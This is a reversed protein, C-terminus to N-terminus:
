VPANVSHAVGDLFEVRDAPRWHQDREGVKGVALAPEDGVVDRATGAGHRRRDPSGYDLDEVEGHRGGAPVFLPEPSGLVGVQGDVSVRSGVGVVVGAGPSDGELQEYVWDAM